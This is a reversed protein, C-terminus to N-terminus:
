AGAATWRESPPWERVPYCPLYRYVRSRMERLWAGAATGSEVYLHCVVYLTDSGGTDM